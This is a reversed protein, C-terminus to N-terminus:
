CAQSVPLFSVPLPGLARASLAKDSITSVWARNPNFSSVNDCIPFNFPRNSVPNGAFSIPIARIASALWPFPPFGCFLQPALAIM